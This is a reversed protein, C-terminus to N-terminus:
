AERLLHPGFYLSLIFRESNKTVVRKGISVLEIEGGNVPCFLRKWKCLLSFIDM